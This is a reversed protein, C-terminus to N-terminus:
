ATTAPAAVALATVAPASGPARGAEEAAGREERAGITTTTNGTRLTSAGGSASSAAPAAAAPAAPAAPATVAPGDMGPQVHADPAAAPATVAPGDIGPQVHAALAAALETDDADADDAAADDLAKAACAEDLARGEALVHPLALLSAHQGRLANDQENNAVLGADLERVARLMHNRANLMVTRQTENQELADENGDQLDQMHDATRQAAIERQANLKARLGAMFKALLRKEAAFAQVLRERTAQASTPGIQNNAKHASNYSTLDYGARKAEALHNQTITRSRVVAVDDQETALRTFPLSPNLPM